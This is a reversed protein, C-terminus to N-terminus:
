DQLLSIDATELFLDRINGLLALRNDRVAENEDMVMVTDFFADIGDRLGALSRLAGTYDAARLLKHVTPGLGTLKAALDWEADEVFLSDDIQRTTEGGAQRLINQIRKNAAALSEAEPRQRFDDVAQVRMAFDHPRAPERAQVAAFVTVPVGREVFYGRLRELIFHMVPDVPNDETLKDQLGEAAAALIKRLDLDLEGEIITRLVGLAARRLAFPDRDGTPPKGVGFIGVLTDLKDAIAVARGITSTAIEDGAYRPRYVEELALAVTEPEGERRAYEAGMIGQLEPFEGVMDTLLDCKCLGGARRALNVQEPPQGLAMMVHGALRAVRDAKEQLSGLQDQFVVKALTSQYSELSVKLDNSLFFAADSLRPRIVRENGECVADPNRSEINAVAVFRALLTQDADVVPFYRQHGQMTARLVADPLELFAEDFRGLLAHPWEVLAAVEELLADDILAVGGVEAAAEDVQARIMDMRADFEAVVRGTGYLTMAYTSPEDLAIAEPHHFRHGRTMRGATIGLIEAEVVDEGFLLVVWHVPRVFEADRDAWRMRRPIPLRALAEEVLAPLWSATTAGPETARFLLWAGDANELRELDGVDVNCSRAFGEAAKTPAGSEDFAIEVKPGRREVERDPQTTEVDSVLVALRRPTAYLTSEGSAVGRAELGSAIERGFAESLLRLARPPLEETGIEILLDRLEPSPDQTLGEAPPDGASPDPTPDPFPDKPRPNDSSSM